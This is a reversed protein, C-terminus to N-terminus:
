VPECKHDGELNPSRTLSSKELVVSGAEGRATTKWDDALPKRTQNYCVQIYKFFIRETEIFDYLFGRM